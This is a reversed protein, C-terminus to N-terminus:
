NWDFALLPRSCKPCPTRLNDYDINAIHCVPCYVGDTQLQFGERIESLKSAIRHIDDDGADVTPLGSLNVGPGMGNIPFTEIWDEKSLSLNDGFRETLDVQTFNLERPDLYEVKEQKKFPWM